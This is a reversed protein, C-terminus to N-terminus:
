NFRCDSISNIHIQVCWRSAFVDLQRVAEAAAWSHVEIGGLSVKSFFTDNMHTVQSPTFQRWQALRSVERRVQDPLMVFAVSDNGCQRRYRSLELEDDSPRTNVKARKEVGPRESLPATSVRKFVLNTRVQPDGLLVQVMEHRSMCRGQVHTKNRKKELRMETGIASSTVKTNFLFETDAKIRTPNNIDVNFITQTNKDMDAVYKVVYRNVSYGTMPQANMMSPMGIFLRPIVPSMNGDHRRMPPLERKCELLPHCDVLKGPDDEPPQGALGCDALIKIANETHKPDVHVTTYNTPDPNSFYKNYDRAVVDGDATGVRKM